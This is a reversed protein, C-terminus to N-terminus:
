YINFSFEVSGLKTAVPEGNKTAPKFKMKKAAEIASETLGDPLGRVVRVDRVTGEATVIMSLLVVGQIKNQRAEETYKAKEKYLVVPKTSLASYPVLGGAGGKGVGGGGAMDGGGANGGRGRGAGGGEGEGIGGGSGTGIGGGKGSGPAPPGEVGKPDGISGKELPLVKPDGLLTPQSILTPNKIKPPDPSPPIITPTLSFPPRVGKSPPAQTEKGGGGGGHAQQIQKKSGGTFGGKGQIEKPAKEVKADSTPLLQVKEFCIEFKEDNEKGQILVERERKGCDESEVEVRYKGPILKSFSVEGKDDTTLTAQFNDGSLQQVTVKAAAVAANAYNVVSVNLNSKARILGMLLLSTFIFAYIIMGLAVGAQLLQTRRKSNGEGHLAEAVFGKPDRRFDRTALTVERKFRSPLSEEDLLFQFDGTEGPKLKPTKKGFDRFFQQVAGGLRLILNGQEPISFSLGPSSAVVNKNSSSPQYPTSAVTTEATSSHAEGSTSKSKRYPLPAAVTEIEQTVQSPAPNVASVPVPTIPQTKALERAYEENTLM